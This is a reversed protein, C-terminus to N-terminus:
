WVPMLQRPSTRDPEAFVVDFAIAAAGLENLADVLHAVETRPWPWQGVRELTEDDLDVVRVATDTYPRPHLRQLADFAQFRLDRVLSPESMQLALVALLALCPVLTRSWKLLQM